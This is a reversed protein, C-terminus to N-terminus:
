RSLRGVRIYLDSGDIDMVRKCVNTTDAMVLVGLSLHLIYLIM